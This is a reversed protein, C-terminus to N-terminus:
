VPGSEPFRDLILKRISGTIQNNILEQIAPQITTLVEAGLIRVDVTHHGTFTIEPIFNNLSQSLINVSNSFQNVATLMQQTNINPMVLNNTTAGPLVQGGNAFRQIGNLRNLAGLGVRRVVDKRLVYEGPTLLAHVSDSNGSGPIIGGSARRVDPNNKDLVSVLEKISSILAFTQNNQEELLLIQINNLGSLENLASIQKEQLAKREGELKVEENTVDANFFNLGSAKLLRPIITDLSEGNIRFAGGLGSAAALGQRAEQANLFSGRQAAGVLTRVGLAQKLQDLPGAGAFNRNFNERAQRDGVVRALEQEKLSLEATDTALVNLANTADVLGRKLVSIESNISAIRSAAGGPGVPLTGDQIDRINNQLARIRLINIQAANGIQESNFGAFAGLRANRVGLVDEPRRVREIGVGRRAAELQNRNEIISANIEAVKIQIEKNRDLLNNIAELQSTYVNLTDVSKKLADTFGQIESANLGELRNRVGAGADSRIDDIIKKLADGVAGEAGLASKIRAQDVDSLEKLFDKLFIPAKDTGFNLTDITAEPGIRGRGLGILRETIESLVGFNGQIQELRRRAGGGLFSSAADLGDRSRINTNVSVRGIGSSSFLSSISDFSGQINSISNDLSSFKNNLEEVRDNFANLARASVELIQIQRDHIGVLRTELEGRKKIAEDAIVRGRAIAAEERGEAIFRRGARDTTALSLLNEKSLLGKILEDNGIEQATVGRQAARKILNGLQITITEAAAANAQQIAFDNEQRRNRKLDEFQTGGFIGQIAPIISETFGLGEFTNGFQRAALTTPDIPFPLRNALDSVASSATGFFTSQGERTSRLAVVSAQGLDRFSNLVDNTSALDNEFDKLTDSVANLANSLRGQIVEKELRETSAILDSFFAVGGAVAGIPGGAFLGVGVGTSIGTGVAGAFGQRQASALASGTDVRLNQAAAISGERDSLADIISPVTFAAALGVGQKIRANTLRKKAEIEAQANLDATSTKAAGALSFGLGKTDLSSLSPARSSQQKDFIGADQLVRDFAQQQDRKVQNRLERRRQASPRPSIGGLPVSKGTTRPLVNGSPIPRTPRPIRGKLIEDTLLDPADLGAIDIPRPVIVPTGAASIQQRAFEDKRIQSLTAATPIQRPPGLRSSAAKGQLRAFERRRAEGTLGALPDLSGAVGVSNANTSSVNARQAASKAAAIKGEAAVSAINKTLQQVATTLAVLASTNKNVLVGSTAGGKPATTGRQRENSLKQEDLLVKRAEQQTQRELRIANQKKRESEKELRIKERSAAIEDKRAREVLRRERDASREKEKSIKAQIKERERLIVNLKEESTLEQEGGFFGAFGKFFQSVSGLGQGLKVIGLAGIVPILPELASILKTAGITADVFGRSVIKFFQNDTIERFLAVFSERLRDLQIALSEQARAAAQNLSNNKENAVNLIEQAKAYETIAPIVRSLQRLGGIQEVIGAFVESTTSKQSLVVGIRQFAEFIGVFEGSADRLEVGLEALATVTETRQLRGAITRIGTAITDGSERTTERISSFLAILENVNGGAAKFAGGTKQIATVIDSAEVAYRASVENISNLLDEVGSAEIKFQRMAAIVGDTTETLNEFSASLETKALSSLVTQTEKASLGAQALILSIDALKASSVGLDTSLKTITSQLGSIAGLPQKVTQAVRVMEREFAIASKLGAAFGATIGFFFTTPITFAAFRKLALASDKGFKAASFTAADIDKTTKRFSTGLGTISAGATNIQSSVQSFKATSLSSALGSLATTARTAVDTTQALTTNFRRFDAEIRKIDKATSGLKLDITASVNKFKSNLSRIVADAGIPGKIQLNATLNFQKAM